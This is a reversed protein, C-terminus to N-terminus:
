DNQKLPDGFLDKFSNVKQFKDGCFHVGNTRIEFSDAEETISFPKSGTGKEKKLLIINLGPKAGPMGKEFSIEKIKKGKIDYLYLDVKSRSPLTYSVAIENGSSLARPVAYAFSVFMCQKAIFYIVIMIFVKFYLKV